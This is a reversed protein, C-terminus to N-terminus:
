CILQCPISWFLLQCSSNCTGLYPIQFEPYKLYPILLPTPSSPKLFVPLLAQCVYLSCPIFCFFSFFCLYFNIKKKMEIEVEGRM